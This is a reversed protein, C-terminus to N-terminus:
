DGLYSNFKDVIAESSIGNSKRLFQQDGILSLNKQTAGIIGIRADIGSLSIAELVASGFGGRVVQEEITVILGKNSAKELYTIDINSIMPVSCVAIELGKNLLVKRANLAISGLSGTFLITGDNGSVLERFKGFELKKTPDEPLDDSVKGLRLYAPKMTNALLKTIEKTELTDSPSYIEMNPLSRLVSVDELAHHTYGQVGYAYGAGVSVVVVSNNMMCVDNRIQELCRLTPFNGISYVFVRKGTSALGAAMGMMSQEAIGANIFQNPLESAFEELVGFGLDGTVLVM